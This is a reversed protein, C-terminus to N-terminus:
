KNMNMHDVTPVVIPWSIHFLDFDTDHSYSVHTLSLYFVIYLL